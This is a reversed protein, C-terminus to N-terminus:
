WRGRDSGPAAPARLEDLDLSASDGGSAGVEADEGPHLDVDEFVAREVEVVVQQGPEVHDHGAHVGLQPHLALRHGLPHHQGHGARVDVDETM